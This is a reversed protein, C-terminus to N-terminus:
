PHVDWQHRGLEKRLWLRLADRGRRPQLRGVGGSALHCRLRRCLEFNRMRAGDGLHVPQPLQLIRCFTLCKTRSFHGVNRLVAASRCFTMREGSARCHYGTPKDSCFSAAAGGLLASLVFPGSTLMSKARSRVGAPGSRARVVAPAAQQVVQVDTTPSICSLNIALVRLLSVM